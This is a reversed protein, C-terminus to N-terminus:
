DKFISHVKQKAVNSSMMSIPTLIDTDEFTIKRSPYNFIEGTVAIFSNRSPIPYEKFFEHSIAQKATLRKDPNFDLLEELLLLGNDSIVTSYQLIFNRLNARLSCM